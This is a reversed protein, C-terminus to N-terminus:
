HNYGSPCFPQATQTAQICPERPGELKQPLGLLKLRPASAHGLREHWNQATVSLAFVQDENPVIEIIGDPCVIRCAGKAFRFEAGTSMAARVSLLNNTFSPVYYVKTLQVHTSSTTHLMSEGKFKTTLPTCKACTVAVYAPTRSAPDVLTPDGTM